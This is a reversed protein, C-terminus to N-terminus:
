KANILNGVASRLADLLEADSKFEGLSLTIQKIILDSTGEGYLEDLITFYEYDEVGDRVHELRISGVPGYIDVEKGCYLLVGNGYIDYGDVASQHTEHKPVWGHHDEPSWTFWDNVLYYLFGDVDYLKQQWFLIRCNTGPTDLSITIEPSEPFRTVYWFVEDGAKQEAAMREAFTGLNKELAASCRFTLKRNVLYDTYSNYFFTHPCWVNVYDKLYEFYDVKSEADLAANLHMPTILKYGPFNNKILEGASIVSDLQQKNSPEDVPYFYAKELWKENQSLFRYASSVNDATPETHWGIPNFAVVRENNLYDVIRDDSFAGKTDYPLTYACMRNELLYDYYLKYLLSDDGEYCMHSSYINWWSLDALTKCTSEDPLEFDWVYAYVKAKKIEEGSSNKVTLTAEYQGSPTDKESYVKILFMKSLDKQLDFAGTLPPIPDFATKGDVKEEFYYGYFVGHRLVNGSANKFETLEATLGSKAESASLLFQCAEIENKALRMQYTNKGTSETDEAVTNTHTHDFWLSVSSDENKADLKDNGVAPVPDAIALLEKVRAEEEKTLGSDPADVYHSLIKKVDEYDSFFRIEAIEVTEGAASASQLFDFRFGNVNGQWGNAATLDFYVYQWDETSNDFTTLASCGGVAGNNNGAAYFLEFSSNSCATARLKILVHGYENASVRKLKNKSMYLNYNFYAFPDNGATTTSLKIASTGNGLDTFSVECQNLGSICDKATEELFVVYDNSPETPPPPLTEEETTEEPETTAAGTEVTSEEDSSAGDTTVTACSTLLLLLALLLTVARKKMIKGKTIRTPKTPMYKIM